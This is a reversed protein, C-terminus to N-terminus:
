YECGGGVCPEEKCTSRRRVGRVLHHQSALQAGIADDEEEEEM